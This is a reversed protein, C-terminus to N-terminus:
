NLVEKTYYDCLQGNTNLLYPKNNLEVEGFGKDFNFVWVFWQPSIIKGERNIYNYKNNNEVIAFGEKFVWADDFWQPSIIKGERNIYNWRSNLEVSACGESFQGVQSFIDEPKMGSDLMGQVEDFSIFGKAKLEEKTYPKFLEYFSGGVLKSVRETSMIKDNGENEHNWRCTITNPSGDYNVSVAIMSLGYEDLPCNEGKVKPINQFGNRLCFYFRGFGGGTYKDYAEAGGDKQTVCWSTFGGYKAAEDANDIPVIKYDSKDYQIQSLREKEEEVDQVAVTKFRDVLENLTLGNLNDDYENVHADTTVYKLTKNLDIIDMGSYLEGDLYMRTVGLMFKYTDINGVKPLRVNPIDHRIADMIKQPDENPYRSSIYSRVKHLNKSGRSENLVSEFVKITKFENNGGSDCLGVKM